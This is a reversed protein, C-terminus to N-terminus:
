SETHLVLQIKRHQGARLGALGEAPDSILQDCGVARPAVRDYSLNGPKNDTIKVHPREAELPVYVLLRLQIGVAAIGRRLFHKMLFGPQSRLLYFALENEVGSDPSSAEGVDQDLPAGAYDADVKGIRDFRCLFVKAIQRLDQDALGVDGLEGKTFAGEIVDDRDAHQVM